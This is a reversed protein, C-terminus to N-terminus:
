LRMGTDCLIHLIPMHDIYTLVFCVYFVHLLFASSLAAQAKTFLEVIGLLM